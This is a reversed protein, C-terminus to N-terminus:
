SELSHPMSSYLHICMNGNAYPKKIKAPTIFVIVQKSCSYVGLCIKGMRYEREKEGGCLLSYDFWGRESM